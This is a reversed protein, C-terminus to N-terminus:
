RDSGLHQPLVELSDQGCQCRYVHTEKGTVENVGREGSDTYNRHEEWPLYCRTEDDAPDIETVPITTTNM